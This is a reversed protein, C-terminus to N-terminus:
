YLYYVAPIEAEVLNATAYYYYTVVGGPRGFSGIQWYSDEILIPTGGFQVAGSAGGGQLSFAFVTPYAAATHNPGYDVIEMKQTLTSFALNIAFTETGIPTGNYGPANTLFVTTQFLITATGDGNWQASVNFVGYDDPNLYYDFGAAQAPTAYNMQVWKTKLEALRQSPQVASNFLGFAQENIFGQSAGTQMDFFDFDIDTFDSGQITYQVLLRDNALSAKMRNVTVSNASDSVYSKLLGSAQASPSPTVSVMQALYVDQRNSSTNVKYAFGDNIGSIYPVLKHPIPLGPPNGVVGVRAQAALAFGSAFILALSYVKLIRALARSFCTTTM